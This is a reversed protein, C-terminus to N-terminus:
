CGAGTAHSLKLELWTVLRVCDVKGVRVRVLRINM